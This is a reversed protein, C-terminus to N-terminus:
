IEIGNLIENINLKNTDFIGSNNGYPGFVASNTKNFLGITRVGVSNALHMVGNDASIFLTSNAIVAGMERIDKSYFSPISFDLKSCNEVPLIEIINFNPFKKSLNNYFEKWWKEELCKEGTANTYLCITKLQNQNLNLLTIKGSQIEADSLKLNLNKIENLLNLGYLYRFNYIPKKAVHNYDEISNFLELNFQDYYKYTSNSFKVALKGSSSHHIPNISLDYKNFIIKFWTNIYVFISNFPRKPLEIFQNINQYNKLIIPAAKGKVFLDIQANPFVSQIEQIFPTLLLLNGLRHNPRVILIKQIQPFEILVNEDSTYKFIGTIKKFFFRRITNLDIKCGM